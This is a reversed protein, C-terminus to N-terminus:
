DIDVSFDLRSKIPNPLRQFSIGPKEHTCDPYPPFPLFAATWCLAPSGCFLGNNPPNKISRAWMPSKRIAWVRSLAPTPAIRWWCRLATRAAPTAWSAAMCCSVFPAFDGPTIRVKEWLLGLGLLDTKEDHTRNPTAPVHPAANKAFANGPSSREHCFWSRFRFLCM